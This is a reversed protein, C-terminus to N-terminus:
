IFSIVESLTPHGHIIRNLEEFKVKKEIALVMEHILETAEIGVISTGLIIGSEKSIIVKIFGSDDGSIKAKPIQKFYVKKIEIPIKADREKLGCSGIAPETFIVSPTIHENSDIRNNIINKALIKAEAYATHAYAFTDICDGIAYINKQTTQFFENVKIFGKEDLKIEARELNLNDTFPVRGTALLVTESQIVSDEEGKISLEVFDNKLKMKEVSSNTLININRKKFERMLVKSIDEDENVLIIEKRAILNVEVGFFNFFTAFECGIVGSGIITISKPLNELEFVDSSSIIKKGDIKLNNIEKAKSGTTIIAKDFNIKQKEVEITNSDIFKAEGYIIEVGSRDLLWIVGTRIEKILEKTKEKLKKLNLGKVEIELGGESFFPTKSAYKAIELYNKTPICGENLCTGGIREKSKEILLTKIGANALELSVKYGAPGAGIVVVDYKM